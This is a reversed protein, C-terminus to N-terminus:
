KSKLTKDLSDIILEQDQNVASISDFDNQLTDLKAELLKERTDDIAVTLTYPQIVPQPTYWGDYTPQIMALETLTFGNNEAWVDIVPDNMDLLYEFRHRTNIGQAVEAGATEKILYGVACYVGRDDIFCPQRSPFPATLSPFQENKRYVSLIDIIALRNKLASETFGEPTNARLYNQVYELHTQIRVIENSKDNPLVGFKEEYSIDGLVANVSEISWSNFTLLPM